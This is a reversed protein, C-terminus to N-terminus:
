LSPSVYLGYTTGNSRDFCHEIIKFYTGDGHEYKRFLSYSILDAVQISRSMRSDLFLPVEAFNRLFEGYANGQTQYLRSLMQYQEEMKSKDFITIGRAHEDKSTYKRKMFKDFRSTIQLFLNEPVNQETNAIVAGFLIFQNPYNDAVYSLVDILIAERKEKTFTRWIGKGSRIPSGHLELDARGTHKLLINDINRQIWYNQTETTVFGALVSCAVGKETPSGSDDAYLLYM